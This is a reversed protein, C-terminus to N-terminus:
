AELIEEISNAIIKPQHDRYDAKGIVSIIKNEEIVIGNELLSPFIVVEIRDTLDQLKVFMMPQGKKTIIKKINSVIGGVTVTEGSIIYKNYPNSYDRVMNLDMNVKKIPTTQQNLMERYKELPHGTIFLGLLEKEWMLKENEDVPIAKDLSISGNFSVSTCNDFLGRQGSEKIKQNKRSWDLLKELNTLMQNREILSDFCGAKVMSEMSKKNLVKGDVRGVFDHIDKFSGNKKREDIILEVINYGVNKIASLGFRIQNKNPVVSFNSFSENIDPALVEIEMKKCEEILEAIREVDSGEATLLAAMYEVPFNAKLYATQYAIVAYCAAHSKNFSYMAFPEIWQWIEQGIKESIGNNKVGEIFKDKQELLLKEIKKGIAKRLIDAESLTFGAIEQAIRMIQEQYLPIGYSSEL